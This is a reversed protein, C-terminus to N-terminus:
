DDGLHHSLRERLGAVWSPQTNDEWLLADGSGWVPGPWAADTAFRAVVHVHLQPVMNGLAGINIKDAGTLSKLHQACRNTVDLLQQQKEKPLQHWETVGEMKPVIIIWPFRQDNMWRLWVDPTEGIAGTDAALQEHLDAM